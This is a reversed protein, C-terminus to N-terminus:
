QKILKKLSIGYDSRIELMYVGTTLSPADLHFEKECTSFSKIIRGQMDRLLLNHRINDSFVLNWGSGSPNPYVNIKLESVQKMGVPLLDVAWIGSGNTGIVVQSQNMGACIPEMGFRFGDGYMEWNQMDGSTFLGQSSIIVNERGNVSTNISVAHRVGPLGVAQVDEWGTMESNLRFLTNEQLAPNYTLVVPMGDAQFLCSVQNLHGGSEQSLVFDVNDDFGIETWTDGHNDSYYIKTHDTDTNMFLYTYDGNGAINYIKQPNLSQVSSSIDVTSSLDSNYGLIETGAGTELSLYVYEDDSGIFTFYVDSTHQTVENWYVGDNTSYYLTFTESMPDDMVSAFMVGNHEYVDNTFYLDEYFQPLGGNTQGWSFGDESRSFGRQESQYVIANDNIALNYRKGYLGQAPGSFTIGASSWYTDYLATTAIFGTSSYQLLYEMYPVAGIGSDGTLNWSEGHDDSYLMEFNLETTFWIASTYVMSDCATMGQLMAGPVLTQSIDTWSDTTADYRYIDTGDQYYFYDSNEEAEMNYITEYPDSIGGIGSFDITTYSEGDESYYVGAPDAFMIYQESYDKVSVWSNSVPLQAGQTWNQGYDNSYYLYNDNSGGEYVDVVALLRGNVFHIGSIYANAIPPLEVWSSDASNYEWVFGDASIFIHGDGTTLGNIYEGQIPAGQALEWITSNVSTYVDKGDTMFGIGDAELYVIAETDCGELFPNEFLEFNSQAQAFLSFCFLFLFLIITKM